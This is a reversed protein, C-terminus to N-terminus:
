DETIDKNYPIIIGSKRHTRRKWIFAQVKGAVAEYGKPGYRKIIEDKCGVIDERLKLLDSLSYDELNKKHLSNLGTGDYNISPAPDNLSM